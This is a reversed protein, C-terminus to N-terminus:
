CTVGEGRLFTGPHKHNKSHFILSDFSLFSNNHNTNNNNNNNKKPLSLM